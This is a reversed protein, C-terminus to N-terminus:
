PEIELNNPFNVKLSTLCGTSSIEESVVLDVEEQEHRCIKLAENLEYVLNRIKSRLVLIQQQRKEDM